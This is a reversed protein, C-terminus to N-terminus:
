RARGALRGLGILAFERRVGSSSRAVDLFYRCWSQDVACALSAIRGEDAYEGNPLMSRGSSTRAQNGSPYYLTGSASRAVVASSTYWTGSTTRATVANRWYLTGSSSRLTSGDPWQLTGRPEEGRGCWVGRQAELASTIDDPEGTAMALVWFADLQQCTEGTSAQQSPPACLRRELRWLEGSEVNFSQALQLTRRVSACDEAQAFAPLAALSLFVLLTRM